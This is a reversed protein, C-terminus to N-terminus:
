PAKTQSGDATALLDFDVTFRLTVTATDADLWGDGNLAEVNTDNSLDNALDGYQNIVEYGRAQWTKVDMDGPQAITVGCDKMAALMSQRDTETDQDQYPTNIEGDVVVLPKIPRKVTFYAIVERTGHLQDDAADRTDFYDMLNNIPDGTIFLGFAQPWWLAIPYDADASIPVGDVTLQTYQVLAPSKPKTNNTKWGLLFRQGDFYLGELSLEVGLAQERQTLPLVHSQVQKDTPNLGMDALMDAFTQTPAALAASVQLLVVLALVACLIRKAKYFM